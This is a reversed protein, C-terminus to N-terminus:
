VAYLTYKISVQQMLLTCYYEKGYSYYENPLFIIKPFLKVIYLRRTYSYM